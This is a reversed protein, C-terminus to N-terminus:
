VYVYHGFFKVITPSEISTLLEMENLRRKLDELGAEVSKFKQQTNPDEEIKVFKFAASEGNWEGEIVTGEGGSGLVGEFNGPYVGNTYTWNDVTFWISKVKPINSLNSKSLGCIDYETTDDFNVVHPNIKIDSDTENDIM